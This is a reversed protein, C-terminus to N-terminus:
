LALYSRYWDVTEAMADALGSAPKWGLDERARASSVSQEAIEHRAVAVVDPSLDTCAVDQILSVMELVTLAQELSFNFARGALAPNKELAEAVCLFATVGDRVGLYDRVMSGDSRIM